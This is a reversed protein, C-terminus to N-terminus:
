KVKKSETTKVVVKDDILKQLYRNVKNVAIVDDKKYHDVKKTFKYYLKEEM